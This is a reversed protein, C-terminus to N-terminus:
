WAERTHRCEYIVQVQLQIEAADTYSASVTLPGPGKRRQGSSPM